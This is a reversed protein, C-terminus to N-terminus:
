SNFLRVSPTSSRLKSKITRGYRSTNPSNNLGNKKDKKSDDNSASSALPASDQSVKIMRTQSAPSKTTKIFDERPGETESSSM